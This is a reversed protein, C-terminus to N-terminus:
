RVLGRKRLEDRLASLRPYTSVLTSAFTAAQVRVDPITHLAAVWSAILGYMGRDRQGTELLHLAKKHTLAMCEAPFSQAVLALIADMNQTFHWNMKEVVPLLEDIRGETQLVQVYFLGQHNLGDAFTRRQAPSLYVRLEQYDSLQGLSRCRNRLADLYLNQDPGPTLTDPRLSELIFADFRNPFPGALRHLLTLMAPKNSALRYRNLLQLAIDPDTEAFQDATKVWLAPDHRKDAIHLQVYETGMAQWGHEDIAEQMVGASEHDTVLAILLPEFAKLDYTYVPEVYDDADPNEKAELEDFELIRDALLQLAQRLQDASFVRLAMDAYSTAMLTHWVELTEEPYDGISSFEDHEPETAAQTGEYVGMYITMADTLRGERLAHSVKYAYPQLVKEILPAADPSEESYWDDQDFELTDEDFRLDSLAEYVESCIVDASLTKDAKGVPMPTTVGAFLALQTRLEPQKDLLQRLFALKKEDTTQQWVDPATTEGAPSFWTIAGVAPTFEITPGFEDIVALGFAVSHKCIGEYYYPCSCSFDPGTPSITLSVTYRSSGDVKGTFTNGDRKIKRVSDSDFYSVGRSYSATNALSQLLTKTLVM